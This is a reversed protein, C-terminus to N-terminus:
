SFHKQIIPFSSAKQDGSRTNFHSTSDRSSQGCSTSNPSAPTRRRGPKRSASISRARAPPTAEAHVLSRGRERAGSSNQRESCISRSAGFAPAAAQLLHEVELPLCTCGSQRWHLELVERVRNCDLPFPQLLARSLGDGQVPSVGRFGTVHQEPDTVTALEGNATYTYNVTRGINDQVQTVRNSPDYTFAIWRGFVAYPHTMGIGFPRPSSPDTDQSNYTRTLVLPLVDPVVLDTM